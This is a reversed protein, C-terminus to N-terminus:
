TLTKEALDLNNEAQKLQYNNELAIEIAEDLTIQRSQGFATVTFVFTFLLLFQLKNM